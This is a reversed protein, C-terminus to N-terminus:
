STANAKDFKKQYDAMRAKFGEEARMQSILESIRTEYQEVSEFRNRSAQAVFETPLEKFADLVDSPLDLSAEHGGSMLYDQIFQRVEVSTKESMFQGFAGSPWGNVDRAFVMDLLTDYKDQPVNPLIEAPAEHYKVNALDRYRFFGNM